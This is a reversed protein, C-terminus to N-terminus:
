KEHAAKEVTEVTEVSVVTEATTVNEVTIIIKCNMKKHTWDIM